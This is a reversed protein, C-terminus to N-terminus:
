KLLEEIDYVKGRELVKTLIDPASRAMADTFEKPNETNHIITDYHMPIGVKTQLIKCYSTAEIYNMNGLKGNICVFTIDPKMGVNPMITNATFLADGSFYLKYGDFEVIYGVSDIDHEAATATIKFGNREISQRRDLRIGEIELKSRELAAMVTGPGVIVEPIVYDVYTEPDFHDWHNHTSLVMDVYVPDNKDIISPYIRESNGKASGCFPDVALSGKDTTVIVGAQGLWRIKASM